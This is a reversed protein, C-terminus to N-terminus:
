EYYKILAAYTTGYKSKAMQFDIHHIKYGYEELTNIEVNLKFEFKKYNNEVSIVTVKLKYDKMM